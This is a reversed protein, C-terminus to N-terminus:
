RFSPPPPSIIPNGRKYQEMKLKKAQEIEKMLKEREKEETEKMEREEEKMKMEEAEAQKQKRSLMQDYFSSSSSSFSRSERLALLSEQLFITLDYIISNNESKALLEAAKEETRKQLDALEEQGVGQENTLILIPLPSSLSLMVRLLVCYGEEKGGKEREREREGGEVANCRITITFHFCEGEEGQNGTKGEILTFDEGYIASLAEVENRQIEERESVSVSGISSSSSSSSSSALVPSSFPPLSDKTKSPSNKHKSKSRSSSM